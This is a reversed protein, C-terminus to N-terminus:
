LLQSESSQYLFYGLGQPHKKDKKYKTRRHDTSTFRPKYPSCIIELFGKVSYIVRLAFIFSDTGKLLSLPKQRYPLKNGKM